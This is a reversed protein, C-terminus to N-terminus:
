LFLPLGGEVAAETRTLPVAAAVGPEALVAPYIEEPFSPENGVVTLAADGSVARVTGEFAGLAGQDLIRISLVSGVGLAVGLVTLVVLGRGARVEAGLAKLFYGRL